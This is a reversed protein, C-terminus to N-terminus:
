VSSQLQPLIQDDRVGLLAHFVGSVRSSCVSVNNEDTKSAATLNSVQLKRPVFDNIVEFNTTQQGFISAKQRQEKTVM